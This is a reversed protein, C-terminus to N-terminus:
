TKKIAYTVYGLIIRTIDDEDTKSYFNRNNQMSPYECPFRRGNM